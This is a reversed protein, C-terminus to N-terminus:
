KWDIFKLDIQNSAEIVDVDKKVNKGSLFPLTMLRIKGVAKENVFVTVNMPLCVTCDAIFQGSFVMRGDILYFIDKVIM